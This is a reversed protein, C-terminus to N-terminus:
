DRPTRRAKMEHQRMPMSDITSFLEAADIPKHRRLKEGGDKGVLIATFGSGHKFQRRVDAAETPALVTWPLQGADASPLTSGDALLPVLLLDRDRFGDADTQLQALQQGLLPGDTRPAFVLLVRYCDRMAALSAPHAACQARAHPMLLVAAAITIPLVYWRMSIYFPSCRVLSTDLVKAM